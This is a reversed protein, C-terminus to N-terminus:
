RKGGCADCIGHVDVQFHCIEGPVNRKIANIDKIAFHTVAGCRNCTFYCHSIEQISYVQKRDHSYTHVGDSAAQERLFRYVTAIGLKPDKKQAKALLEEASFFTSFGQMAEELAKKQRTTRAM